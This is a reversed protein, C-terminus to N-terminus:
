EEEKLKPRSIQIEKEKYIWGPSVVQVKKKEDLGVFPTGEYDCNEVESATMEYVAGPKMMPEIHNDRVFQILKRVMILLGNIELPLEYNNKRLDEVGKRIVLLEDLICGYKESNLKAFFDTLEKVKGAELQEEFEDQLDQLMLNTRELSNEVRRLRRIAQEYTLENHESMSKGSNKKDSEETRYGYVDALIDSVDILYYHAYTNGLQHLQQMAEDFDLYPSNEFMMLLAIRDQTDYKKGSSLAASKRLKEFQEYSAKDGNMAGDFAKSVKEAWIFVERRESQRTMRRDRLVQIVDEGSMDEGYASNMIEAICRPEAGADRCLITFIRNEKVINENLRGAKTIKRLMEKHMGDIVEKMKPNIKNNM